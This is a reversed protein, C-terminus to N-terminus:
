LVTKSPNETYAGARGSEAWIASSWQGAIDKDSTEVPSRMM